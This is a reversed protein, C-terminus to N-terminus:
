LHLPISPIISKLIEEENFNRRNKYQVCLQHLKDTYINIAARIASSRTLKVKSIATFEDIVALLNVYIIPDIRFMRTATKVIEERGFKLILSNYLEKDCNEPQESYSESLKHLLNTYQSIAANIGSTASLKIHFQEAFEDITGYIINLEYISYMMSFTVPKSSDNMNTDNVYEAFIFM